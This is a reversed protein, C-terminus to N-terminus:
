VRTVGRRGFIGQPRLLLVAMILALVAPLSLDNGIFPVYSRLLNEGVGVLLGGVVAGAQSDFGGLIAAAFAYILVNIMVNPGLLTIPAVLMGAVAGILTALGWGLELTFGVNVGALESSTRNM